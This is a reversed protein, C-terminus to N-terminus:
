RESKTKPLSLASYQSDLGDWKAAYGHLKLNLTWWGSERGRGLDEGVEVLVVEPSGEVVSAAAPGVM